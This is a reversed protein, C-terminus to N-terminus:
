EKSHESKGSKRKEWLQYGRKTVFYASVGLLIGILLGALIDTPYHVYFYLRTSAMVVAAALALAGLRRRWMWIGMAAAFSSMAHGSPFSFDTPNAILLLIDPNQWCPRMRAVLPKLTLNGILLSFLLAVIVTVGIMRTKKKLLLLLAILIWIIGGEGLITIWRFITTLIDNQISLFWELIINDFWAIM